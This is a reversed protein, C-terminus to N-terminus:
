CRNEASLVQCIYTKAVQASIDCLSVCFVSVGASAPTEM